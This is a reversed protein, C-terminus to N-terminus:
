PSDISHRRSHHVASAVAVVLGGAAVALGLNGLRRYRDTKEVLLRGPDAVVRGAIIQRMGWYSYAYMALGLALIVVALADM